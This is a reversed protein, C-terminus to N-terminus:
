LSVPIYKFKPNSHNSNGTCVGSMADLEIAIIRSMDAAFANDTAVPIRQNNIGAVECFKEYMPVLAYGFGFMVVTFILLKKRIMKNVEGWSGTAAQQNSIKM